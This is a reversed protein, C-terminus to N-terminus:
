NGNDIVHESANDLITTKYYTTSLQQHQTSFNDNQILNKITTLSATCGTVENTNNLVRNSTTTTTANDGDNDDNNDGHITTHETPSTM